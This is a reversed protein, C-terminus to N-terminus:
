FDEQPETVLEFDFGNVSKGGTSDVVSYQAGHETCIWWHGHEFHATAFEDDHCYDFAELFAALVKREMAPTNVTSLLSQRM